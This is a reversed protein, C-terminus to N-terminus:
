LLDELCSEVDVRGGLQNDKLVEALDNALPNDDNALKQLLDCTKENSKYLKKAVQKIQYPTM